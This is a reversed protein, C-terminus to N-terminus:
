QPEAQTLPPPTPAQGTPGGQPMPQNMGNASANPDQGPQGPQAGAMGPIMQMAAQTMQDNQQKQKHLHYHDRFVQKTPDSLDDFDASNMFRTHVSIHIDDDYWEEVNQQQGLQLLANEREAQQESVEWDAPQSETLELMEMLKRPDQVVGRDWLDFMFQQKAAKSRPLASGAQCEVAAVGQLMSGYFDFVEPESHRRYLAVTRPIDYYQAMTQLTLWGWREIM